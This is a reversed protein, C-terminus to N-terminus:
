LVCVKIHTHCMLSNFFVRKVRKDPSWLVACKQRSPVVQALCLFTVPENEESMM